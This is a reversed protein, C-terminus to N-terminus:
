LLLTTAGSCSQSSQACTRATSMVSTVENAAATDGVRACSITELVSRVAAVNVNICGELTGVTAECSTLSNFCAQEHTNRVDVTIPAPAKAACSDLFKECDAKSGGSLLASPLCLLRAIEQFGVTANVHQDLTRCFQQKDDTSLTAATTTSPLGSNYTSGSDDHGCALGLLCTSLALLRQPISFHKMSHGM